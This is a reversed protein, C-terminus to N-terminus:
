REDRARHLPSGGELGLRPPHRRLTAALVAAGLVEHGAARLARTAEVLTAGTTVVDDLLVVRAAPAARARLAGHLNGARQATTLGSQDAVARVPVLLRASRAAVGRRRLEAVAAGTLRQAHDYGRARVASRASPVPCLVVPGPGFAAAVAGLAGGLPASLALTAREKHAILLGRVAGQYAAHALVLPLGEPCPDPRVRGLPTARLTARCARCLPRGPTRCGACTRPLVLDLLAALVQRPHAM